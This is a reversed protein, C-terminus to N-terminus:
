YFYLEGSNKNLSFIIVFTTQDPSFPVHEPPKTFKQYNTYRWLNGRGVGEDEGVVAKFGKKDTAPRM